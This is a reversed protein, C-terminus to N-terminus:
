QHNGLNIAKAKLKTFIRRHMVSIKCSEAASAAAAAGLRREAKLVGAIAGVAEAAALAAAKLRWMSSAGALKRMSLKEGEDRWSLSEALRSENLAMAQMEAALGALM